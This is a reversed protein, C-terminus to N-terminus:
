SDPKDNGKTYVDSLCANAFSGAYIMHIIPIALPRPLVDEPVM